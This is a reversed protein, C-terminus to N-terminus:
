PGTCRFAAPAGISPRSGLASLGSQWAAAPWLFGLAAAPSAASFPPSGSPGAGFLSVFQQRATRSTGTEGVSREQDRRGMRTGSLMVGAGSRKVGPTVPAGVVDTPGAVARAAGSQTPDRGARAQGSGGLPNEWRVGDRGHASRPRAQRSSSVGAVLPATTLVAVSVPKGSETFLSNWAWTQGLGGRDPERIRAGDPLHRRLLLAASGDDHRAPIKRRTPSFAITRREPGVGRVTRGSTQIKGPPLQVSLPADSFEVAPLLLQHNRGSRKQVASCLFLERGGLLCRAALCARADGAWDGPSARLRRGFDALACPQLLSSVSEM